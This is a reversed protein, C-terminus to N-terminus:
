LVEITGTTPPLLGVALKLMTTKGAGNPGVLGVVYGAPVTLTCDTLAWRRRYRKGLGRASLVPAAVVPAALVPTVSHGGRGRVSLHEPVPGRHERRGPRGPAGQGALPAPRHAAARARGALRREADRDRVHRRRAPGRGPGRAGARPLGQARHQPQHGGDRGRGEGDPAPRGPGAPRAAPGAPGPPHAAPLPCRRLPRGPPVRDGPGGNM